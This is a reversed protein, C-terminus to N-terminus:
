ARRRLPLTLAAIVLGLMILSSPEPASVVLPHNVENLSYNVNLSGTNDGYAGPGVPTEPSGFEPVGDAFGFFLRTAGTPVNFTQQLSGNGRGDGIFFVQALLPSFVLGNASAPSYVLKVPGSGSTEEPGVFAGVLFMQRGTFQIGSIGAYGNINTGPWNSFSVGDPGFVLPQSGFNVAGTINSFSVSSVDGSTFSFFPPLTAGSDPVSSHGAGWIMATGPVVVVDAQLPAIAGLALIVVAIWMEKRM